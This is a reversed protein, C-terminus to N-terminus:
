RIKIVILSKKEEIIQKRLEIFSKNLERGQRNYKPVLIGKKALRLNIQRINNKNVNYNRMIVKDAEDNCGYMLYEALVESERTTIDENFVIISYVKLLSRIKHVDDGELFLTLVQM